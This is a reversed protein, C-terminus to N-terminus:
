ATPEADAPDAEAQRGRGPMLEALAAELEVVEVGLAEAAVTLGAERGATRGAELAATVADADVGLAEALAAHREAMAAARRAASREAM